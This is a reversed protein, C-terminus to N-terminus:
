DANMLKLYSSSSFTVRLEDRHFNFIYNRGESTSTGVKTCHPFECLARLIHTRLHVQTSTHIHLIYVNEKRQDKMIKIVIILTIVVVYIAHLM